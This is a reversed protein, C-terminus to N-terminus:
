ARVPDIPPPSLRQSSLIASGAHTRSSCHSWGAGLSRAKQECVPEAPPWDRIKYVATRLCGGARLAHCAHSTGCSWVCTALRSLAPRTYARSTRPRSMVHTIEEGLPGRLLARRGWAFWGRGVRSSVVCLLSRAMGTSCRTWHRGMVRAMQGGGGVGCAESCTRRPLTAAEVVTVDAWPPFVGEIGPCGRGSRTRRGGGAGGAGGAGGRRGGSGILGEV